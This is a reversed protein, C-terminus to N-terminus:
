NIESNQSFDTFENVVKSSTVKYLDGGAIGNINKILDEMSIKNSDFSFQGTKHEFSVKSFRVGELKHIKSEILKSCGIECTMGKITVEINQINEQLEVIPKNIEKSSENNCAITIVLIFLAVSYKLIKM